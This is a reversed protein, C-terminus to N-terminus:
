RYTQKRKIHGEGRSFHATQMCTRGKFAGTLKVKETHTCVYTSIFAHQTHYVYHTERQFFAWYVGTESTAKKATIQFIPM